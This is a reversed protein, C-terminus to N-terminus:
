RAETEVGGISAGSLFVPFRVLLDVGTEVEIDAGPKDELCDEEEEINFRLASSWSTRGDMSDSWDEPYELMDDTDLGRFLYTGRTFVGLGSARPKVFILFLVSTLGNM